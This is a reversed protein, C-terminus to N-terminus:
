PDRSRRSASEREAAGPDGNLAPGPVVEHDVLRQLDGIGSVDDDDLGAAIGARDEAFEHTM